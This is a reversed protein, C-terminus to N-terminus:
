AVAMWIMARAFGSDERRGSHARTAVVGRGGGLARRVPLERDGVPPSARALNLELGKKLTEPLLALAGEPLKAKRMRQHGSVQVAVGRSLMM